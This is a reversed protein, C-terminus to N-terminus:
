RRGYTPGYHYHRADASYVRDDAHPTPAGNAAGATPEVAAPHWLRAAYSVTPSLGTQAIAETLIFYSSDARVPVSDKLVSRLASDLTFRVDYNVFGMVSIHFAGFGAGLD